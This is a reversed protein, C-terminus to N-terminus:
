YRWEVKRLCSHSNAFYLRRSFLGSYPLLCHLATATLVDTHRESKSVTAIFDKAISNLEKYISYMGTCGDLLGLGGAWHLLEAANDDVFVAADRCVDAVKRWASISIDRQSSAMMPM